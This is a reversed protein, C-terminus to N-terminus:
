SITLQHSIIVKDLINYFFVYFCKISVNEVYLKCVYANLM